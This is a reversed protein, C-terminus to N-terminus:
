YTVPNATRTTTANADSTSGNTNPTCHLCGTFCYDNLCFLYLRNPKENNGGNEIETFGNPNLFGKNGELFLFFAFGGNM